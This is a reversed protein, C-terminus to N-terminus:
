VHSLAPLRKITRRFGGSSAFALLALLFDANWGGDTVAQEWAACDLHGPATWMGWHLFLGNTSERLPQQRPQFLEGSARPPAIVLVSLVLSLVALGAVVARSIRGIV